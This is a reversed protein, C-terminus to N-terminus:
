TVLAVTFIMAGKCNGLLCSFAVEQTVPPIGGVHSRDPSCPQGCLGRGGLDLGEGWLGPTGLGSQVDFDGPLSSLVSHQNPFGSISETM